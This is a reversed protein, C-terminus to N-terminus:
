VLAGPARFNFLSARNTRGEKILNIDVTYFRVCSGHTGVFPPYYPVAISKNTLSTLALHAKAGM